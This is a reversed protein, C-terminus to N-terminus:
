PGMEQCPPLVIGQFFTAFGQPQFHPRLFASVPKGSIELKRASMAQHLQDVWSMDRFQETELLKHYRAIAEDVQNM